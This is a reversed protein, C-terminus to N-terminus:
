QAATIALVELLSIRTLEYNEFWYRRGDVTTVAYQKPCVEWERGHKTRAEYPAKIEDIVGVAVYAEKIAEPDVIARARVYTGVSLPGMPTEFTPDKYIRWKGNLWPAPM